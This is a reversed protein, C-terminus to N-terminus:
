GRCVCMLSGQVLAWCVMESVRPMIFAYDGPLKCYVSNAVISFSLFLCLLFDIPLNQLPILHFFFWGRFDFVPRYNLKNICVDLLKLIFTRVRTYIFRM